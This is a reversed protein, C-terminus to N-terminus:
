VKVVDIARRTRSPLELEQKVSTLGNKGGFTFEENIVEMQDLLELEPDTSKTRLKENFVGFYHEDFAAFM